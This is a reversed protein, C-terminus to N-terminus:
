YIYKKIVEMKKKYSMKRPNKRYKKMNDIQFNM